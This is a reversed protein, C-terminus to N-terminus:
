AVNLDLDLVCKSRSRLWIQIYTYAVYPNLDVLASLFVHSGCKSRSRPWM